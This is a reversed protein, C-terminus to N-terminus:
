REDDWWGEALQRPTGAHVLYKHAILDSLRPLQENLRGLLRDLKTREGRRPLKRLTEAETMRVATLLSLVIRQEPSRLPQSRERPLNEVHDALTMLQFAVSRPNTDDTLVLDLVPAPQLTALYRSRYTMVSDAVELFAELVPGDQPGIDVLINQALTVTHLARELRRGIDLFRWGQTRTMSEDVLGGFAALDIIMRNALMLVDSLGVASRTSLLQFEEHIRHIIRWSDVSLRDRVLSGLRHVAAVNSALSASQMGDFVAAPLAREIAPLQQRIGEIVFGPELQGLAALCRLLPNLEPLGAIEHESTLRSLITRLLRASGDAREIQRGLWFLNDAVRSPLENGSRRLEIAQGAPTLLTVERVPGEALVWADKSGEGGLVSRDLQAAERSVRVLGGPLTVYSNGSAVLYVRLAMHAPALGADTAIPVCSRGFREQAVYRAPHAALAAEHVADAKMAGSGLQARSRRFASTVILDDRHQEVHALSAPDGCWWTGISPMYLEENLLARCLSPLYAMFVSPEILSSGLANAVAVNGNRVAELLGPVGVAPDGHLELPDANADNLRRFIVDVPLLGGLTKLLVHDDRVALDGSEVLTYGLYRSLYADEFYHPSHPGQSLLVIRPNTTQKPALERLTERLAIFFPALREVRTRRIVSSLMRSVVIRNELAYGAGLPADTRDAVVWWRGDPSRALDAAYFHLFLDRPPQQGHLERHFNPHEFLLEAPLLGETLLRQPGYLDVLVRNLLRARQVLGLTIRRWEEAAILVPLVDLDWPRAAQAPDGVANYMLGNEHVLRVAQERRRAFEETGFSALAEAFPRWHPRAVGPAALYEDFAGHLPTYGNFLGGDTGTTSDLSASM